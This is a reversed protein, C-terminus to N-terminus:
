EGTDKKDDKIKKNDPLTKYFAKQEIPKTILDDAIFNILGFLRNAIGKNDDFGITGPHVAENGTIRVADMAAVIEPSLNKKDRLFIIDNHVNKGNAGLQMCLKQLALRLLAAAARPSNHLISGAENYLEKIDGDLDDNAQQVGAVNPIALKKNIWLCPENCHCCASVHIMFHSGSIISTNWKTNWSTYEKSWYQKAYAHCLPCNFADKDFKPPKYPPKSM